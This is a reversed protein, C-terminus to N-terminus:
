DKLWSLSHAPKEEEVIRRISHRISARKRAAQVPDGLAPRQLSFHVVVGFEHPVTRWSREETSSLAEGRDTVVVRGMHDVAISSPSVLGAGFTIREISPPTRGLDVRYVAPPEALFRNGREDAFGNRLGTDCVLLEDEAAFALGTPNVLPNDEEALLAEQAWDADPDIRVLNAPRDGLHDRADAVLYRGRADQTLTTPELVRAPDDPPLDDLRHPTLGLPNERVVALVPKAVDGVPPDGSVAVGRDLVVLQGDRNQIMGVPFVLDFRPTTQPGIVITPNGGGEELRLIAPQRTDAEPGRDLIAYRNAADATVAAPSAVAVGAAGPRRMHLPRPVTSGATTAFEFTGTEDLRWIAPQRERRPDGPDALVYRNKPDVAISVPHLLATVARPAGGVEAAQFNTSFALPHLPLAGNDRLRGQFLAEGTDVVIRPGERIISFCTLHALLGQKLGRNRHIVAMEALLVRQQHETLDPRLAPVVWAALWPLFSRPTHRPSFVRHLEAITRELPPPTRDPVTQPTGTLIEEFVRLARGLFQTPDRESSWLGVPLHRVYSSLENDGM